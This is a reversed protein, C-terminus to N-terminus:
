LSKNGEAVQAILHSVADIDFIQSDPILVTISDTNATPERGMLSIWYAQYRFISHDDVQEIWIEGGTFPNPVLVVVLIRPSSDDRRLHNYNRINLPFHINGDAHIEHAYTCKIQVM